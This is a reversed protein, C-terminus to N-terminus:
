EATFMKVKTRRIKNFSKMSLQFNLSFGFTYFSVKIIRERRTSNECCLFEVSCYAAPFILLDLMGNVAESDVDESKASGKCNVAHKTDYVNARTTWIPLECLGCSFEIM